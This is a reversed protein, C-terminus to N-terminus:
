EYTVTVTVVEGAPATVPTGDFTLTGALILRAQGEVGGLADPTGEETADAAAMKIATVVNKGTFSECTDANTDRTFKTVCTQAGPSYTWGTGSVNPISVSVTSTDAGDIDFVMLSGSGDTASDAICGSGGIDGPEYETAAADDIPTATNIEADTAAGDLNIDIESEILNTAAVIYCTTGSSPQLKVSTGFSLETGAIALTSNPTVAVDPIAGATVTFTEGSATFANGLGIILASALLSKKMKMKPQM